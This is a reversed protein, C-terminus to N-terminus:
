GNVAGGCYECCGSSDPTTTAGCYPCTVATKPAAAAAMENRAQQRVTMLAEKIEEGMEKYRRYDIDNDPNFRNGRMMGGMMGGPRGGGPRAGVPRGGVPATPMGRTPDIEVSSSNLRFRIDDFYPNRVNISIYFDYYYKYRPPNYSVQKFSKLCDRVGLSVM